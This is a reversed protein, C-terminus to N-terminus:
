GRLIEDGNPLPSKAEDGILITVPGNNILGIKMSAGFRGSQVPIGSNKMEEIFKEYLEKARQPKEAKEFSPRNGRKTDALLTFQSVVMAEGGIDKISLNMKGKDDDFVRLNSIKKALYKIDQESDGREIGLFILLGENSSAIISGETEVEARLVRQIVAKM